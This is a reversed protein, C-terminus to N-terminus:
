KSSWKMGPKGMRHPPQWPTCAIACELGGLADEAGGVPLAQSIDAPFGLEDIKESISQFKESSVDQSISGELFKQKREIIDAM